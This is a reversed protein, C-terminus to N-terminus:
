VIKAERYRNMAYYMIGLNTYLNATNMNLEGYETLQINLAKNLYDMAKDNNHLKMYVLGLNNYETATNLHKEGHTKLKINLAEELYFEAREYDNQEYYLMGSNHIHIAHASIDIILIEENEIKV